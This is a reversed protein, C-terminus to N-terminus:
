IRWLSIEDALKLGWWVDPIVALLMAGVIILGQQLNSFPLLYLLIILPEIGLYLILYGYYQFPIRKKAEGKPPNGAEYRLRKFPRAPGRELLLALLIVLLGALIGLIVVLLLTM